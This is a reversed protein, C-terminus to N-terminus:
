RELIKRYKEEDWEHGNQSWDSNPDRGPFATRCFADKNEFDVVAHVYNNIILVAATGDKTWAIVLESPIDKDVVNKVNYIHLAERIPQKNAGAYDMDLAYFYGTETDDEFVVHYNDHMESLSELFFDQGVTITAKKGLIM